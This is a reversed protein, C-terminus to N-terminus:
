KNNKAEIWLNEMEDSSIQDLNKGNKKLKSEIYNFRNIFKKNTRELAIYPNIKIFRAYNILSFLIDGFEDESKKLNGKEAENYFESMEEEVKKWVQKSSNWDFGVGAVKDQLRQAKILPPLGNPVGSLLGKKNKKLKLKEWNKKVEAEDKLELDGFVHPHRFILKESIANSIDTIDFVNEESGLKAYFVLHLLLDGLENKIEDKDGNLIADALEYTEEITLNLLSEFTQKKDWPCEERLRDMIDLLGGLAELKKEKLSM